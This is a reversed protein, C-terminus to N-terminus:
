VQHRFFLKEFPLGGVYEQGEHKMILDFFFSRLDVWPLMVAKLIGIDDWQKDKTPLKDM